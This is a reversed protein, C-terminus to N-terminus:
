PRRQWFIDFNCKRYSCLFDLGWLPVIWKKIGAFIRVCLGWFHKQMLNLMFCNNVWNLIYSHIGGGHWFVIIIITMSSVWSKSINLQIHTSSTPSVKGCLSSLSNHCWWLASSSFLHGPYLHSSSTKDSEHPKKRTFELLSFYALTFFHLWIVHLM